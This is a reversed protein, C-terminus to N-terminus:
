EDGQIATLATRLKALARDRIRRITRVDIPQRKQQARRKNIEAALLHVGVAHGDLGFLRRVIKQELATLASLDVEPREARPDRITDVWSEDGPEHVPEQPMMRKRAKRIARVMDRKIATVAYTSFRGLGPWSRSARLLSEDGVSILEQYTLIGLRAFHKAQAFSLRRNDVIRSEAQFDFLSQATLCM